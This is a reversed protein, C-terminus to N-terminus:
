THFNCVKQPYYYLCIIADNTRSIQCLYWEHYKLTTEFKVQWHSTFNRIVIEFYWVLYKHWIDCCIMSNGISITYMCFSWCAWQSVARWNIGFLASLQIKKLAFLQFQTCFTSILNITLRLYTLRWSDTSYDVVGKHSEKRHPHLIHLCVCIVLWAFPWTVMLCNQNWCSWERLLMKIWM